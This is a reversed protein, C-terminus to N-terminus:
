KGGLFCHVGHVLCLCIRPQTMTLRMSSVERVERTRALREGLRRCHSGAGLPNEREKVPVGVSRCHHTRDDTTAPGFM